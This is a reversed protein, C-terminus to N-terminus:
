SAHEDGKILVKGSPMTINGKGAVVGAAQADIQAKQQGLMRAQAVICEILEKRSCTALSKGNWKLVRAPNTEDKTLNM